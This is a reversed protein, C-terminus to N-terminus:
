PLIDRGQARDRRAIVQETKGGAAECGDGPRGLIVQTEDDQDTREIDNGAANVNRDLPLRRRRGIHKEQRQAATAPWHARFRRARGHQQNTRPQPRIARADAAWWTMKKMKM